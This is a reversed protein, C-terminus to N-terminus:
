AAVSKRLKARHHNEIEPVDLVLVVEGNGLVTGGAVCPTGRMLVGLPKIVMEQQNLLADVVLGYRRDASGVVVVFLREERKQRRKTIINAKSTHDPHRYWYDEQKANLGLVDDLYLLPLVTNRLKIVESNGVTQIESPKIRISEIVSNLPIALVEEQIGVLLSQMIALTLPLQITITSGKGPASTIEVSGKLKAIQKRVVDMGVGRGSVTTLKEATSFGPEFILNFIDRDTLVQDASILGKEIGKAKIRNIDMGKGDDSIQIFIHNGEQRAGLTVTGNPSKGSAQREAATEVGHDCANRILHILPDAIQEVLTKDFETEEGFLVLDIKKNLQRALDRVVRPYKNFVSGVPVMRVKMIIEQVENMHRGFQQLTETMNGALKLQPAQIRLSEDINVFRTRDIVLEGILNVLADLRELDVRITSAAENKKQGGGGAPAGHDDSGASALTAAGHEAEPAANTSASNAEAGARSAGSPQGNCARELMNVVPSIKLGSPVQSLVAALLKKLCDLGQFVADITDANAVLKGKRVTDFLSEMRHMVREIARFGFMGAAGKLTHAARFIEEITEKNTPNRELKLVQDDLAQMIDATNTSFDDMMDPDSAFDNSEWEPGEVSEESSAHAAHVAPTPKIAKPAPAASEDVGELLALMAMADDDASKAAVPKAAVPKAAVPKAAVAKAAVAKAAVPADMEALLRMAEDDSVEGISAPSAPADMDALLRMAEEDSVEGSAAPASPADMDALLRMAEDDSVEADGGMTIETDGGMTIETDNDVTSTTQLEGSPGSVGELKALEALMIGEEESIDPIKGSSASKLWKSIIALLETAESITTQLNPSAAREDSRLLHLDALAKVLKPLANKQLSELAASTIADMSM